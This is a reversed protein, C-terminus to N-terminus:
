SKSIFCSIISLKQYQLREFTDFASSPAISFLLYSHFKSILCREFFNQYSESGFSNPVFALQYCFNVLNAEFSLQCLDFNSFVLFQCKLFCRFSHLRSFPIRFMIWGLPGIDWCLLLLKFIYSHQQIFKSTFSISSLYMFNTQLKFNFPRRQCFQRFTMGGLGGGLIKKVWILSEKFQLSPNIMSFLVITLFIFGDLYFLLFIFPLALPLAESPCTISIGFM